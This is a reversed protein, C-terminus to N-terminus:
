ASLDFYYKSRILILPENTSKNPTGLQAVKSDSVTMLSVTIGQPEATVEKIIYQTLVKLKKFDLKKIDKNKLIFARIEERSPATHTIEEEQIQLRKITIQNELDELKANVRENYLGQAIADIIANIQKETEKIEKNLQAITGVNSEKNWYELIMNTLANINTVTELLQEMLTTIIEDTKIANIRLKCKPCRYYFYKKSRGFASEGVMEAGCNCSIMGSLLYNHRSILRGKFSLDKVRQQAKKFTEKDVIAPIGNEIKITEGKIKTKYVGIYKENQVIYNISSKSLPRNNRSKIGNEKLYDSIQGVKYGEVYMQFVKRILQAEVQDIEYENNENSKYGLALTGGNFKCKYANEKMGKAVERSLNASFYENLGDLLSELLISEPSDDLNELVSIITKGNDKLTKRNVAADYRNRAFRDLKHVIVYDYKLYKSERIMKLFEDRDDSRGSVGHDAYIKIIEIEKNAAYKRIARIQADISEERQSDHSYRAYIVAKKM